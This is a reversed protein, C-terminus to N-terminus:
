NGIRNRRTLISEALALDFPTTLKINEPSGPFVHVEYGAWELLSSEDTFSQEGGSQDFREYAAKLWDRRFVQPTQAAVLHSRDVTREIVHQEDIRKITDTVPIAAVAAGHATACEIGDCVMKATILPRAADHVLVLDVDAPLSSVGNRVSAARTEGGPCLAVGARCDQARLADGLPERNELSSVVVIRSIRPISDLVDISRLVVMRGALIAMTKNFGMRQSRGAAVVVAGCTM